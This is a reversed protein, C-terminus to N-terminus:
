PIVTVDLQFTKSEKLRYPPWFHVVIISYGLFNGRTGFNL